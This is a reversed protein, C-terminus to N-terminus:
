RFFTGIKTSPSKQRDKRDFPPGARPPPLSGGQYNQSNQPGAWGSGYLASNAIPMQPPYSQGGQLPISSPRQAPPDGRRDGTPRSPQRDRNRGMDVRSPRHNRMNPAQVPVGDNQLYHEGPQSGGQTVEHDRTSGDWDLADMRSQCNLCVNDNISNINQCVYCHWITPLNPTTNGSNLHSTFKPASVSGTQSVRPVGGHAGTVNPATSFSPPAELLKGLEGSGTFCVTEGRVVGAGSEKEMIDLADKLKSNENLLEQNNNRLVKLESEKCKSLQLLEVNSEQLNHTKAENREVDTKSNNIKDELNAIHIKADEYLTHVEGFLEPDVFTQKVKHLELELNRSRSKETALNSEADRKAYDLERFDADAKKVSALLEGNKKREKDNTTLLQKRIGELEKAKDSATKLSVQLETIKEDSKKKEGILTVYQKQLTGKDALLEDYEKKKEETLTDYQQQLAEKGELMKDYEKQAQELLEQKRELEKNSEELETHHKDREATVEALSIKMNNFESVLNRYEQEKGYLVDNLQEAEDKRQKEVLDLKENLARVKEEEGRVKKNSQELKYDRAHVEDRMTDLERSLSTIKALQSASDIELEQIRETAREHRKIAAALKEVKDSHCEDFQVVKEQLQAKTAELEDNLKKCHVAHEVALKKCKEDHESSLQQCHADHEANLKDRNAELEAAIKACEDKYRRAEAAMQLLQQEYIAKEKAWQEGRGATQAKDKNLASDSPSKELPYSQPKELMEVDEYSSVSFKPARETTVEERVLAIHGMSVWRSWKDKKIKSKQAMESLSVQRGLGLCESVYTLMNQVNGKAVTVTEDLDHIFDQLQVATCESLYVKPVAELHESAM